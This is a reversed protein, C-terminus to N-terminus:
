PNIIEINNSTFVLHKNREYEKKIKDFKIHIPESYGLSDTITLQNNKFNKKGIIWLIKKNKQDYILKEIIKVSTKRELETKPRDLDPFLFFFKENYLGKNQENFEKFFYPVIEHRTIIISDFNKFTKNKLNLFYSNELYTNEFINYKLFHVINWSSIIFFSFLLFLIKNSTKFKYFNFRYNLEFPFSFFILMLFFSSISIIYPTNREILLATLSAFFLFFLIYNEKKTVNKIYKRLKFLIIFIIILTPLYYYTNVAGILVSNNFFINFSYKFLGLWAQFYEHTVLDEGLSRLHLLSEPINIYYYFIVIIIPILNAIGCLIIKKFSRQIFILYLFLYFNFIIFVPHCITALGLFICAALLYYLNDKKNILFYIAMLNFLIGLFEPRILLYTQSVPTLSLFVPFFIIKLFYQKKKNKQIFSKIILLSLILIGIFILLKFIRFSYFNINLLPSTIKFFIGQLLPYLPFREFFTYTQDLQEFSLNNTNYFGLAPLMYVVDDTNPVIQYNYYLFNLFWFFIFFLYLKKANIYKM